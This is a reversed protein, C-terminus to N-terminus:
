PRPHPALGRQPRGHPARTRACSRPSRLKRGSCGRAHTQPWAGCAICAVHVALLSEPRVVRCETVANFLTDAELPIADTPAKPPLVPLGSRVAVGPPATPACRTLCDSDYGCPFPVAHRATAM